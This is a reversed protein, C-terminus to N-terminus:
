SFEKKEMIKMSVFVSVITGLVAVAAAIVCLVLLINKANQGGILFGSGVVVLMGALVCFIYLFRSKEVGFKFFLPLIIDVIIVSVCLYVPMSLWDQRSVGSFLCLLSGLLFLGGVFIASFLYKEGVIKKRPVGSTVAFRDWRDLEDFNMSSITISVSLFLMMGLFFYANKMWVSLAAFIAVCLGYHLAHVKVNLFDKWLLGKM